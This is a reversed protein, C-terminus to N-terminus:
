QCSERVRDQFDRVTWDTRGDVQFTNLLTVRGAPTLRLEQINVGLEPIVITEVRQNGASIREGHCQPEGPTGVPTGQASAAGAAMTLALAGAATAVMFRRRLPHMDRHEKISIVLRNRDLKVMIVQAM